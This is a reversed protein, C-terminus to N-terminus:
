RAAYDPNTFPWQDTLWRSVDRWVTVDMEERAATVWSRVAADYGKRHSPYIYVCGIVDDGDLVTYTFGERNTFDRAHRELDALNAELSMPRPWDAGGFGPTSRIHYISATWAAYDRDNHEPLLPVLRFGNGEFRTPAAFDASVFPKTM